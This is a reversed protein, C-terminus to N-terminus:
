GFTCIILGAVFGCCDRVRMVLEGICFIPMTGPLRDTKVSFGVVVFWADIMIGAGDIELAASDDPNGLACVDNNSFDACDDVTVSGAMGSMM